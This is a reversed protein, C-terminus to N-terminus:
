FCVITQTMTLVELNSIKAHIDDEVGIAKLLDDILYFVIIIKDEM